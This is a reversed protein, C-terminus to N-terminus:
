DCIPLRLDFIIRTSRFPNLGKSSTHLVEISDTVDGVRLIKTDFVPNEGARTVNECLKEADYVKRTKM